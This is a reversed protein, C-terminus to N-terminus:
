NRSPERQTMRLTHWVVVRMVVQRLQRCRGAPTEFRVALGLVRAREFVDGCNRMLPTRAALMRSDDPPDFGGDLQFHELELLQPSIQSQRDSFDVPLVAVGCRNM